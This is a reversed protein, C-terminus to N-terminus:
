EEQTAHEIAIKAVENSFDHGLGPLEVHAFRQRDRRRATDSRVDESRVFRDRGGTVVLVERPRLDERERAGEGLPRGCVFVARRAISSHDLVAAGVSVGQSFGVLVTRETRAAHRSQEGEVYRVVWPVLERSWRAILPEQSTIPYWANGGPVLGPRDPGDPGVIVLDYRGAAASSLTRIMEDATGGYGHLAVLLWPDRSSTTGTDPM